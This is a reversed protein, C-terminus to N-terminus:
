VESNESTPKRGLLADTPLNASKAQMNNESPLRIDRTQLRKLFSERLAPTLSFDSTKKPEHAFVNFGQEDYRPVLHWHVQKAEDMYILYVKELALVNLLTDRAVDMVEMLYDYEADSLVRLDPAQQKWVIVTHGNTLPYLALCVYLWQDEYIISEQSPEPLASSPM